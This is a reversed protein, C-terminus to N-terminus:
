KRKDIVAKNQLKGLASQKAKIKNRIADAASETTPKDSVSLTTKREANKKELLIKKEETEKQLANIRNAPVGLGSFFSYITVCDEGTEESYIGYFVSNPGMDNLLEKSYSLSQATVKDWVGKPAVLLFGVYKAQKIEFGEGLLGTNLNELIAEGIATEDEYNEVRVSGYTALGEGDCLLKAFEASDLPKFDSPTRSLRNFIDLPEVAAANAVKFFNFPSVDSYIVEMKANDVVILNAIKRSNTLKTLKNLTDLANNKVQIDDSRSPLVTIVIIPMDLQGLLNIIVEASGAGSGGGLSTCFIIVEENALHDQALQLIEKANAEAAAEGISLDKAAGGLGYQLLLKQNDPLGIGALDQPATNCVVAPYGLKAFSEAIRSGCQGSGFVGFKLSKSKEAIIYPPMKENEKKTLQTLIIEKDLDDIVNPHKISDTSTSTSM